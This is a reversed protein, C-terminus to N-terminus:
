PAQEPKSSARDLHDGVNEAISYWRNYEAEDLDPAMASLCWVEPSMACLIYGSISRFEGALLESVMRAVTPPDISTLGNMVFVVFGRGESSLLRENTDKLQRNAKKLVRRLPEEFTDHRGERNPPPMAIQYVGTGNPQVSVPAPVLACFREIIGGHQFYDKDLVKLEVILRDIQHIYDANAFSPSDGVIESVRRFGILRFLEDFQAEIEHPKKM